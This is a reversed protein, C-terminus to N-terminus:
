CLGIMLEVMKRIFERFRLVYFLVCTKFGCKEKSKDDGKDGCNKIGDCTMDDDICKGNFCKFDCRGLKFRIAEKILSFISSIIFSCLSVLSCGKM